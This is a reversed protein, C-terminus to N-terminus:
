TTIILEVFIGVALMGFVILGGKKLPFEGKPKQVPTEPQQAVGQDVKSAPIPHTEPFNSKKQAPKKKWM